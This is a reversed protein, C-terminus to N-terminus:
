WRIHEGTTDISPNYPQIDKFADRFKEQFKLYKRARFSIKNRLKEYVPDKTNWIEMLAHDEVWGINLNCTFKPIRNLLTDFLEASSPSNQAALATIFDTSSARNDDNGTFGDKDDGSFRYFRLRHYKKFVDTYATDPFEKMLRFSVFSMRYYNKLFKEKIIKVDEKKRFKALGYLAYEIDDFGMEYGDYSLRRPRTAMEKILSYYKEQPAIELLITYASRLYNYKTLVLEITKNLSQSSEWRYKKLLDDSIMRWSVGFEGVDYAVIATDDLHNMVVDFHNFSKRDLMVRLASARLVPHESKSLRILEEDTVIKWM